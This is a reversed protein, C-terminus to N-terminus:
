GVRSAIAAAALEAGWARARELEGPVLPGKMDEVLFSESDDLPRMGRKRLRKRLSGATRDVTRIVNKDVRSDFTVFRIPRDLPPLSDLWERLGIGASVLPEDTEQAAQERTSPRSMGFAHNPGGVILLEVEDPIPVPAHGVEVVEVTVEPALGEAVAEAIAQNNGFMSEYVLLARM